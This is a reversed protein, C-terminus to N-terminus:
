VKPSPPPRRTASRDLRHDADPDPKKTAASVHRSIDDLTIPPPKPFPPLPIPPEFVQGIKVLAKEFFGHREFVLASSLCYQEWESLSRSVSSYMELLRVLAQEVDRPGVRREEGSALM